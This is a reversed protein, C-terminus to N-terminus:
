RRRLLVLALIIIIAIVAGIIILLTTSIGSPTTEGNEEESPPAETVTVLVTDSVSYRGRDHVIITYVYTGPALLGDVNISLPSGDWSGAQIETGNRTISYVAPYISNPTWTIINGTEGEEYQIDDPSNIEPRLLFAIENQWIEFADSYTSDDTDGDYETLLIANTIARGGLSLIISANGTTPTPGLGAVASGNSLLTLNTCDIFVANVASSFNNAGYQNPLSFIGHTNDWIYIPPPTNYTIGSYEFGLYTWLPESGSDAYKWTSLILKGGTELYNIIKSAYDPFIGGLYINDIVVLEWSKESISINLYDPIFTLYFDLGLDNLALAVSGKYPNDNPDPIGPNEDVYILVKATLASLWNALNLIYQGNNESNVYGDSLWNIDMGLVVAGSGYNQTAFVINDQYFWLAKADGTINIAGFYSVRLSSCGEITRHSNKESLIADLQFYTTDNIVLDMDALLFALRAAPPGFSPYQPSEGLIILGGGAQIWNWLAVRDDLTFNADPAVTILIDYDYLRDMTFNGLTSPYLKDFTFTHNVLLDRMTEYYGPFMSYKWDWLDVSLRPKHSLDFLIRGKPRPMLWNVADKVMNNLELPWMHQVDHFIQVIKGGRNVPDFAFTLVKDSYGKVTSLYTFADGVSSVEAATRNLIAYDFTYYPQTYNIVYSKTVPHRTTINLNNTFGYNWYTLYGNTGEAEPIMGMYFLFGIASDFTLLSGGGLWFEKVYNTINERPLNDVIILVDYKATMLKHEQIDAFTLNDVIYGEAELLARIVTFNNNLQGVNIYSPLTTNPEDYIAVRIVHEVSSPLLTSEKPIYNPSSEIQTSTDVPNFRVSTALPIIMVMLCLFALIKLRNNEM